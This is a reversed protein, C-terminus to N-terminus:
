KQSRGSKLFGETTAQWIFMILIKKAYRKESFVLKWLFFCLLWALYRLVRPFSCAMFKSM